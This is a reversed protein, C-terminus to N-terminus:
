FSEDQELQYLLWITRTKLDTHILYCLAVASLLGWCPTPTPFLCTM